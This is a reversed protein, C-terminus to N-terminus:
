SAQRKERDPRDELTILLVQYVVKAYKSPNETQEIENAMDELVATPEDHLYQLNEVISEDVLQELDEDDLALVDQEQGLGLMNEDDFEDEGVIKIAIVGSEDFITGYGYSLVFAELQERTRM